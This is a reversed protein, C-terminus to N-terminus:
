SDSQRDTQLWISGAQEAVDLQRLAQ